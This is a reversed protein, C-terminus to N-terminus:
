NITRASTPQLRGNPVSHAATGRRRVEGRFKHPASIQMYQQMRPNRPEHTSSPSVMTFQHKTPDFEHPVSLGTFFNGRRNWESASGKKSFYNSESVSTAFAPFSIM